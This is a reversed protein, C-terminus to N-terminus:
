ADNLEARTFVQVDDPLASRCRKAGSQGPRRGAEPNGTRSQGPGRPRPAFLRFFNAEDMVAVGIGLFGTGLIYDGGITM